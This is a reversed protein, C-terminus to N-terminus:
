GENKNRMKMQILLIKVIFIIVNVTLYDNGKRAEKANCHSWTGLEPRFSM